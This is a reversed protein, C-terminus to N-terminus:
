DTTSTLASSIMAALVHDTATYNAFGGQKVIYTMKTNGM